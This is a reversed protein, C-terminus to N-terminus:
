STRGEQGAAPYITQVDAPLLPRGFLLAIHSTWIGLVESGSEGEPVDETPELEFYVNDAPNSPHIDRWVEAKPLADQRYSPAGAPRAEFIGTSVVRYVRGDYEFLTPQRAATGQRVRAEFAKLV